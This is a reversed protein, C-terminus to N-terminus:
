TPRQTNRNTLMNPAVPRRVLAFHASGDKCFAELAARSKYLTVKYDAGIVANRTLAICDADERSLLDSVRGLAITRPLANSV